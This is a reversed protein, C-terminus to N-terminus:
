KGAAIQEQVLKKIQQYGEEGFQRKSQEEVANIVWVRLDTFQSAGKAMEALRWTEEPINRFFWTRGYVKGM